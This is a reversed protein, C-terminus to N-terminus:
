AQKLKTLDGHEIAAKIQVLTTNINQLLHKGANLRIDEYDVGVLAMAEEVDSTSPLHADALRLEYIGVLVGLVKRGDYGLATLIRELRKLSGLKPESETKLHKLLDIDIREILFRTIDKCLSYFGELTSAEFRHIKRSIEESWSHQRLLERGFKARSLDQIEGILRFFATEPSETSAPHAEMQSMLLEV